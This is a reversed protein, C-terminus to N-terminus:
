QTICFPFSNYLEFVFGFPSTRLSNEKINLIAFDIVNLVQATAVAIKLTDAPKNFAHFHVLNDLANLTDMATHLGGGAGILESSCQLFCFLFDLITVCLFRCLM